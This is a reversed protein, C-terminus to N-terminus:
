ESWERPDAQCTGNSVSGCDRKRKTRRLYVVELSRGTQHDLCSSSFFAADKISKGKSNNNMLFPM